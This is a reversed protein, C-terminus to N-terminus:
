AKLRRQSIQGNPDIEAYPRERTETFAFSGLNLYGPVADEVHTHGFIVGKADTTELIRHAAGRLDQDLTGAAVLTEVRCAAIGDRLGQETRVFNVADRLGRLYQDRDLERGARGSQAVARIIRALTM